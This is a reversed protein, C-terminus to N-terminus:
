SRDWSPWEAEEAIRFAAQMQEDPVPEYKEGDVAKDPAHSMSGSETHVSEVEKTDLDVTVFVEQLYTLVVKSM